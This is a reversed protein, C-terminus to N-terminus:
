LGFDSLIPTGLVDARELVLYAAAAVCAAAVIAALNRARANDGFAGRSASVLAHVGLMAVGFAGFPKGAGHEWQEAIMTGVLPVVALFILAVPRLLTELMARARGRRIAVVVAVVFTGGAVAVIANSARHLARRRLDRRVRNAISPPTSADIEKAARDLGMGSWALDWAADRLSREATADRAASLALDVGRATQGLRLFAGALFIATEQKVRSNAWSERQKALADLAAPDNSRRPDKRVADLAALEAFAGAYPGLADIRAKATGAFWNGPDIRLVDRYHALASDYRNAAEDVQGQRFAERAATDRDDARAPSVALVFALVLARKV